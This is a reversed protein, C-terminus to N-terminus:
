LAADHHLWIIILHLIESHLTLGIALSVDLIKSQREEVGLISGVRAVNQSCFTDLHLHYTVINWYFQDIINSFHNNAM